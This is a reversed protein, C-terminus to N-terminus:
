LVKIEVPNQAVHIHDSGEYVHLKTIIKRSLKNKPLMRRVANTILEISYNDVMERGSRKRLGGMYHSHSYWFENDLKDGTLKVKSANIVIVNDGCDVNPTWIPKNKGRLINAVNVALKGLVLDTADVVFWKRDKEIVEKKIMTTKQM